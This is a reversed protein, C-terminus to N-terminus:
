AKSRTVVVNLDFLELNVISLVASLSEVKVNVEISIEDGLRSFVSSVIENAGKRSAWVEVAKFKEEQTNFVELLYKTARYSTLPLTEIALESNASVVKRIRRWLTSEQSNIIM